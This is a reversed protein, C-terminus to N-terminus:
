VPRYVIRTGAARDGLTRREPDGRRLLMLAGIYLALLGGAVVASVGHLDFTVNASWLLYIPAFTVLWRVAARKIGPKGGADAELVLELAMQGPTRGRAHFLIFYTPIVISMWSPEAPLGLLPTLATWGLGLPLTAVAVIALDLGVSFARVWFGAPRTRHPSLRELALILADYSAFREAPRKAMMRELVGDLVAQKAELRPRPETLHRSVVALPTPGTFPPEGTVLHHLTVGLSYIDSRFDVPAGRAQEPSM